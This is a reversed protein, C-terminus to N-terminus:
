DCKVIQQSVDGSKLMIHGINSDTKNFLFVQYNKVIDNHKSFTVNEHPYCIRIKQEEKNLFEAGCKFLCNELESMAEDILKNQSETDLDM